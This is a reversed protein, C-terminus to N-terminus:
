QSLRVQREEKGDSDGQYLPEFTGGLGWMRHPCICKNLAKQRLSPLLTTRGEGKAGGGVMYKNKKFM